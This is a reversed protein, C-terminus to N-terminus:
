GKTVKCERRIKKDEKMVDKARQEKNERDGERIENRGKREAARGREKEKGRDREKRRMRSYTRKREGEM